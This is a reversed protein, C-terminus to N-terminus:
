RASQQPRPGAMRRLSSRGHRLAGAVHLALLALMLKSGLEHLRGSYYHLAANAEIPSPVSFWGLVHVPEGESWYMLPGSFAMVLMVALLGAHVGHELWRLPGPASLPAPRRGALLALVSWQARLLLPLLALMGLGVHWAWLKRRLAGDPLLEEAILGLALLAITLLAGGWHALRSVPGYLTPRAAAPAPSATHLAPM